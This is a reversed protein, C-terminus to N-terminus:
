RVNGRVLYLVMMGFILSVAVVLAYRNAKEDQATKRSLFSSHFDTRTRWLPEDDTNYEDDYEDSRYVREGRSKRLDDVQGALEPTEENTSRKTENLQHLM